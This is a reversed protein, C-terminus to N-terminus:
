EQVEEEKLTTVYEAVAAIEQENMRKAVTQMVAKPDNKRVGSNFNTLQMRVYGPNQGNLRPYKESGSGDENHCGACAPVASGIIGEQFIQQGQAALEPKDTTGPGRTQGSFYGALAGFESEDVVQIISSMVESTREGSKFDRLQRAIYKESLGALKPLDVIDTNGDTGHCGSCFQLREEFAPTEDAQAALPLLLLGAIVGGRCVRGAIREIRNKM